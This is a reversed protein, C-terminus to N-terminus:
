KEQNPIMRSLQSHLGNIPIMRFRFHKGTNMRPSQSAGSKRSVSMEMDTKEGQIMYLWLGKM